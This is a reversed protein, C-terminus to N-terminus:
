PVEHFSKWRITEFVINTRKNPTQILVVRREQARPRVEALHADSDPIHEFVDLSIVVDFAAAPYPLTTGTVLQIPLPGFFRRAEDILGRRLESAKRRSM